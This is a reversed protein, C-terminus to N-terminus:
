PAAHQRSAPQTAIRASEEQFRKEMAEANDYVKAMREPSISPNQRRNHAYNRYVLEDIVANM